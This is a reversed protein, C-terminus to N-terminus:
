RLQGVQKDLAGIFAAGLDTPEAHDHLLQLGERVKHAQLAHIEASLRDSGCADMLREYFTCVNVFAHVGLLVGMLPRPDPRWPSPHLADDRLLLPDHALVANVRAHALEHCLLDAFARPEDASTLVVGPLVPSTHSRTGQRPQLLLYGTLFRAVMTRAEPWVAGLLEHAQAAVGALVVAAGPRAVEFEAFLEGVDPAYGSLVPVGDVLLGPLAGPVDADVGEPFGGRPLTLRHGDAWTLVVRGTETAISLPGGRGGVLAHLHPLYLGGHPFAEPPLVVHGEGVDTNGALLRWASLVRQEATRRDELRELESPHPVVDYEAWPSDFVDCTAADGLEDIREALAAASARATGTTGQDAVRVALEVLAVRRRRAAVARLLAFGDGGTGPLVLEAIDVASALGPTPSM